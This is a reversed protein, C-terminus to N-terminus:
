NDLGAIYNEYAKAGMLRAFDLPDVDQLRFLWGREYPSQTVLEPEGELEDNVEAVRGAVPSLVEIASEASEVGGLEDGKKVDDDIEPLDVYTVEGLQAAAYATLGVLYLGDDDERIWQHSKTYKCEKPVM